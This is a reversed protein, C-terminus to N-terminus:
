LVRPLIASGTWLDTGCLDNSAPKKLDNSAPKKLDNSMKPSEERPSQFFSSKTVTPAPGILERYWKYLGSQDESSLRPLANRLQDAIIECHKLSLRNEPLQECIGTILRGLKSSFNSDSSILELREVHDVVKPKQSNKEVEYQAVVNQLSLLGSEIIMFLSLLTRGVAYIDIKEKNQIPLNKNKEWSEPAGYGPTGKLDDGADIQEDTKASGFDFLVFYIDGNKKFRMGINAPKIDAHVVHSDRLTNLARNMSEIFNVVFHNFLIEDRLTETRLKTCLSSFVTDCRIMVGEPSILKLIGTEVSPRTSTLMAQIEFEAAPTSTANKITKLVLPSSLARSKADDSLVANASFVTGYSGQGVSDGGVEFKVKGKVYMDALDM